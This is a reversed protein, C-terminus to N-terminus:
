YIKFSCTTRHVKARSCHFLRKCGYCCHEKLDTAAEHGKREADYEANLRIQKQLDTESRRKQGAYYKHM